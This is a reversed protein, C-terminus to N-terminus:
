CTWFVSSGGRPERRTGRGAADDACDGSQRQREHESGPLLPGPLWRSSELPLRCCEGQGRGRHPQPSGGTMAVKRVPEM